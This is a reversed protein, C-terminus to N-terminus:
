LFMFPAPPFYWDLLPPTFLDKFYSSCSHRLLLLAIDYLFCTTNFFLLTMSSCFCSYCQFPGFVIDLLLLLADLFLLLITDFFLMFLCQLPTTGLLLLFFSMSSSCSYFSYKTLLDYNFLIDNTFTSGQVKLISVLIKGVFWGV